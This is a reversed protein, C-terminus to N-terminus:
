RPGQWPARRSGASWTAPSWHSSSTSRSDARAAAGSVATVITLKVTDSDDELLLRGIFPALAVVVLLAVLSLGVIGAAAAAALGGAVREDEGERKALRPFLAGVVVGNVGQMGTVLRTAVGTVAAASPRGAIGLVRIAAAAFDYQTILGPLGM